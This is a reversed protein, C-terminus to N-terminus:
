GHRRGDPLLARGVARPRSIGAASVVTVLLTFVSLDGVPSALRVPGAVDPLTEAPPRRAVVEASRAWFADLREDGPHLLRDRELRRVM